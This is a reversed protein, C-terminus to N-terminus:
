NTNDAQTNHLHADWLKKGQHGPGIQQKQQQQYPTHWFELKAKQSPYRIISLRSFLLVPLTWVRRWEEGIVAPSFYNLYPNFLAVRM